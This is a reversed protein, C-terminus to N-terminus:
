AQIPLDQAVTFLIGGAAKLEYGASSSTRESQQDASDPNIPLISRFCTHPTGSCL